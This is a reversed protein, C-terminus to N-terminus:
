LCVAGEQKEFFEKDEPSVYQLFHLKKLQGRDRMEKQFHLFLKKSYDRWDNKNGMVRKLEQAHKELGANMLKEYTNILSKGRVNVAEVWVDECLEPRIQDVLQKVRDVESPIVPCIMGYTRFNNDQLWHLMEVRQKIASANKEIAKSIKELSTGTSLSYTIRKKYSFLAEAIDRILVSKSLVRVQLNSKEMIMKIAAISIDTHEPIACPDCTTCFFVTGQDGRKIKRLDQAVTYLVNEKSRYSSFEEIDYGKDLISKVSKQKITISPVYCFSCGFECINGINVSYEALRKHEFGITRAIGTKCPYYFHKKM